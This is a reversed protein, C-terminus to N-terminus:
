VSDAFVATNRKIAWEVTQWMKEVSGGGDLLDTFNEEYSAVLEKTSISINKVALESYHSKECSNVIKQIVDKIKQISKIAGSLAELKTAKLRREEKLAERELELDLKLREIDKTLKTSNRSSISASIISLIAVLFSALAAIMAVLIKPDNM